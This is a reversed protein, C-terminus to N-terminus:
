TGLRDQQPPETHPSERGTSSTVDLISQVINCSVQNSLIKLNLSYTHRMHDSRPNPDLIFATHSHFSHAFCFDLLRDLRRHSSDFNRCQLYLLTSHSCGCRASTSRGFSNVLNRTVTQPSRTRLTGICAAFSLMNLFWSKGDFPMRSTEAPRSLLPLRRQSPYATMTRSISGGCDQKKHDFARPHRQDLIYTSEAM